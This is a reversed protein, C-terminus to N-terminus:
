NRLDPDVLSDDGVHSILVVDFEIRKDFAKQDYEGTYYVFYGTNPVKLDNRRLLWQYVEMQRKYSEHWKTDLKRVPDNPQQKTILLLISVVAVLGYIM